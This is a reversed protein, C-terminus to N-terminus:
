AFRRLYSKVLTKHIQMRLFSIGSSIDVIAEPFRKCMQYNIKSILKQLFLYQMFTIRVPRGNAAEILLQILVLNEHPELLAIIAQQSMLGARLQILDEKSRSISTPVELYKLLVEPLNAVAFRKAMKLWLEYDEPPFHEPNESYLGITKLCQARIMVSSHVFQNNILLQIQLQGNTTPHRHYRKTAGTPIMIQAWTGVLGYTPNQDLFTLQKELRASFSIDDADQRALYMGRAAAIGNNLARPLGLNEQTIVIIRPDSYRALVEQTNDTSGDNIIILEFDGFSQGLISDIAAGLYLAANYTPLIVSIKPKSM